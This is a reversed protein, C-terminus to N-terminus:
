DAGGGDDSDDSDQGDGDADYDSDGACDADVGDYWADAAGDYISDDTDDCDAGHRTQCDGDADYDSDGACDADVSDYWGDARRRLDDADDCDTTATTATRGDGDADYDSNEACDGDVGDYGTHRGPTSATTADTTSADSDHGDGDADYDSDACDSDGDYDPAGDYIADNTDDCDDGSYADSDHGDGDADYDSNEACDSDVGDYWTDPAGDYITDDTDDCDAGGYSDSDQGDGDADYDSDEGCDSDVGDYWTEAAGPYITDDDDDCDDGGFAEGDYGDGDADTVQPVFLNDIFVRDDVYDKLEVKVFPTDSIIGGFLGLGGGGFNSSTYVVTDSADYATIVLGGAFEVLLADIPSAFEIYIRGNGNLLMGDAVSSYALTADNGDTFELGDDEYQTTVTVGSGLEAFGIETYSGGFATVWSSETTYETAAPPAPVPPLSAGANTVPDTVDALATAPLSVALLALIHRM